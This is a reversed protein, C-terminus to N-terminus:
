HTGGFPARTHQHKPQQVGPTAPLRRDPIWQAHHPRRRIAPGAINRSPTTAASNRPSQPWTDPTTGAAAAALDGEVGKNQAVALFTANVVDDWFIQAEDKSIRYPVASRDSVRDLKKRVRILWLGLSVGLFPLPLSSAGSVVSSQRSMAGAKWWNWLVADPLLEALEAGFTGVDGLRQFRQVGGAPLFVEGAQGRGAADGLVQAPVEFTFHDDM